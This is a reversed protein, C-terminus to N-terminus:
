TNGYIYQKVEPIQSLIPAIHRCAADSFSNSHWFTKRLYFLKQQGVGASLNEQNDEGKCYGQEDSQEQKAIM